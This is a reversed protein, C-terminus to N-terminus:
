MDEKIYNKIIQRLEKIDSIEYQNLYSIYNERLEPFNLNKNTQFYINAMDSATACDEEAKCYFLNYMKDLVIWSFFKNRRSDLSVGFYKSTSRSNRKGKIPLTYDKDRPIEPFNLETNEGLIIRAAQDYELAADKETDWHRLWIMDYRTKLVRGRWKRSKKDYYTGIYNSEFDRRGLKSDRILKKSKESHKHGNMGEGGDTENTLNERGFYTIWYKEREERLSYTTEEIVKMIPLLNEKILKRVWNNRHGVKDLRADSLHRNYRRKLDHTFGVYRIENNIPDILCYIFMKGNQSKDKRAPM